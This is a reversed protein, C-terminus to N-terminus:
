VDNEPFVVVLRASEAFNPFIKNLPPKLSLAFYPSFCLRSALRLHLAAQM